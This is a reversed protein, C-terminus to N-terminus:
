RNAARARAGTRACERGCPVVQLQFYPHPSLVRALARGARRVEGQAAAAGGKGAAAKGQAKLAKRAKFAELKARGRAAAREKASSM